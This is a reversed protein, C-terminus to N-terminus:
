SAVVTVQESALRAILPPQRNLKKLSSLFPLWNAGGLAAGGAVQTQQGGCKAARPGRANKTRAKRTNHNILVSTLAVVASRSRSSPKSPAVSSRPQPRHEQFGLRREKSRSTPPACVHRLFCRVFPALVRFKTTTVYYPAGSTTFFSFLFFITCTRRQQSAGLVKGAQMGLGGARM